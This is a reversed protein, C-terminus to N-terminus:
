SLSFSFIYVRSAKEATQYVSEVAAFDMKTPYIIVPAPVAVELNVVAAVAPV